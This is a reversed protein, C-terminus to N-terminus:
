ALAFGFGILLLSPLMAACTWDADLALFWAYAAVALVMGAVTVPLNGYRPVLLRTVTPALVADLGAVMLALGTSLASWGRLEQLYLVTIFQFGVFSGVFL